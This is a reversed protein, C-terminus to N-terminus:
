NYLIYTITLTHESTKTITNINNITYYKLPNAWIQGYIGNTHDGFLVFDKNLALM